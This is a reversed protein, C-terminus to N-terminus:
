RVSIHKLVQRMMDARKMVSYFSLQALFMCCVDRLWWLQGTDLLVFWLVCLIFHVTTASAIKSTAATRGPLSLKVAPAPLIPM